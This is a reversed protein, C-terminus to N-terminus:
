ILGLEMWYLVMGAMSESLSTGLTVQYTESFGRSDTSVMKLYWFGPLAMMNAIGISAAPM